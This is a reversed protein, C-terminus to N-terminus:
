AHMEEEHETENIKALKKLHRVFGVEEKLSKTIGEVEISMEAFKIESPTM